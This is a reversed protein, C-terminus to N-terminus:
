GHENSEDSRPQKQRLASYMGDFLFASRDVIDSRRGDGPPVHRQHRVGAAKPVGEPHPVDADGLIMSMRQVAPDGAAADIVHVLLRARELHALFEHGLGIGESAGEILGPVDAVVLQRGDPAEVM